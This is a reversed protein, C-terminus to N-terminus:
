AFQQIEVEFIWFLRSWARHQVLSLKTDGQNLEYEIIHVVNGVHKFQRVKPLTCLYRGRRGNAMM